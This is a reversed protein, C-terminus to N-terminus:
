LGQPLPCMGADDLPTISITTQTQIVGGAANEVTLTVLLPRDGAMTLLVSTGDITGDPEVSGPDIVVDCPNPDTPQGTCVAGSFSWAYCVDNGPLACAAVAADPGPPSYILTLVPSSGLSDLEIQTQFDDGVCVSTPTATIVAAPAQPPPASCAACVVMWSLRRAM